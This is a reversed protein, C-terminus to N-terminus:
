CSWIWDLPAPLTRVAYKSSHLTLIVHGRGIAPVTGLFPDTYLPAVTDSTSLRPGLPQLHGTLGPISFYMGSIGVGRILGEEKMKFLEQIALLITEDGSGWAKAAKSRVLGWDTQGDVEEIARVPDGCYPIPFVPSAVFEVDHLFVLDLYSTGLRDLSRMVSKRVAQPSYDFDERSPGYRGCKTILKYTPRPFEHMLARLVAGLVIESM